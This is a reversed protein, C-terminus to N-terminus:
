RHAQRQLQGTGNGAQRGAQRSVRMDIDAGGAPAVLEKLVNANGGAGQDHVSSVPNAEGLEVCARLLRGVQMLWGCVHSSPCVATSVGCVYGDAGPATQDRGERPQDRGGVKNGVEPDGRQVANTEHEEEEEEGQGSAGGVRSSAGGGGLGM